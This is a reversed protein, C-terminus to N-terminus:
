ATAEMGAGPGHESLELAIESAHHADTWAAYILADDARDCGCRCGTQWRDSSGVTRPHPRHGKGFRRDLERPSAASEDNDSWSM